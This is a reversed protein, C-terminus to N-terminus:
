NCCLSISQAKPKPFFSQKVRASENEIQKRLGTTYPANSIPATGTLEMNAQVKDVADKILREGSNSRTNYLAQEIVQAAMQLGILNDFLSAKKLIEFTHDKFVTVQPNIGYTMTSFMIYHRDFDTSSLAAAEIGVMGHPTDASFSVNYERIAQVSGLDNQFYGIYFIGGHNSDSIYNLVVDSLDVITQDYAAVTVPITFLPQKKIDNFIYLNFTVAGNFYLAVSEIQTALGIQLPTKIQVGVFKNAAMIPQDNAAHAWRQYFLGRYLLEPENFIGNLARLIVAKQVIQLYANYDADNAAKQEMIAKLNELTVLAHFSGDNYRRGSRSALNITNLTPGTTQLWGIRGFMATLVKNYNFGNTYDGATDTLYLMGTIFIWYEDTAHLPANMRYGGATLPQYSDYPIPGYGPATVYFDLGQLSPILVDTSGAAPDYPGFGGVVIHIPKGM